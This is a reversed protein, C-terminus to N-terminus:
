GRLIVVMVPILYSPKPVKSVSRLKQVFRFQSEKEEQAHNTVKRCCNRNQNLKNAKKKFKEEGEFTSGKQWFCEAMVIHWTTIVSMTLTHLFKFIFVRNSAMCYSTTSLHMAMQKVPYVNLTLM